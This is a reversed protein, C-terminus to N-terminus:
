APQAPSQPLAFPCHRDANPHVALNDADSRILIAPAKPLWILMAWAMTNPRKGPQGGSRTEVIPLAAPSSTGFPKTPDFFVSLPRDPRGGPPGHRVSETPHNELFGSRRWEYGGYSRHTRGDLFTSRNENKVASPRGPKEGYSGLCCPLFSRLGGAKLINPDQCTCIPHAKNFCKKVMRRPQRYRGNESEAATSAYANVPCRMQKTTPCKFYLLDDAHGVGQMQPVRYDRVILHNSACRVKCGQSRNRLPLLRNICEM